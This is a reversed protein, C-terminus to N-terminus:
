ITAERRVEVLRGGLALTADGFGHYVRVFGSNRLPRGDLSTLTFLVPAGYEQGGWARAHFAVFTDAEVTFGYPPLVVAGGLPSTMEYDSGAGNVVATVGNGFTTRRILCADDLFDYREILSESTLRNLPSLV